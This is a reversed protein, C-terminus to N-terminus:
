HTMSYILYNIGFRLAETSVALPQRPQDIWEWYDGFDNNVNLVMLLRGRNDYYGVFRPKGAVQVYPPNIDLTPIDYYSNYV